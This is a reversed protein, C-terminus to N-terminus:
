GSPCTGRGGSGPEEAVGVFPLMVAFGLPMMYWMEGNSTGCRLAFLLALACFLGTIAAAHLPRPTFLIRRFFEKVSIGEVRRLVLFLAISYPELLLLAGEVFLTLFLLGGLFEAIPAGKSDNKWM